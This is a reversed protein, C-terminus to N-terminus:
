NVGNMRDHKLTAFPLRLVQTKPPHQPGWWRRAKTRAALTPYWSVRDRRVFDRTWLGLDRVAQLQVLKPAGPGSEPVQSLMFEVYSIM